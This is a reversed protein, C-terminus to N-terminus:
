DKIIKEIIIKQKEINISPKNSRAISKIYIASIKVRTKPDLELKKTQKM